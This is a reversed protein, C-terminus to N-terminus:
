FLRIHAAGAPNKKRISDLLANAEERTIGSEVIEGQDRAIGGQIRNGLSCEIAGPSDQALLSAVIGALDWGFVLSHLPLSHHQVSLFEYDCDKVSFVCYDKESRTGTLHIASVETSLLM